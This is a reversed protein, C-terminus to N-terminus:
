PFRSENLRIIRPLSLCQSTPSTTGQPYRLDKEFGVFSRAGIWGSNGLRKYSLTGTEGEELTDYIKSSEVFLEKKSGDAFQFTVYYNPEKLKALGGGGSKIYADEMRKSLVTVHATQVPQNNIWRSYIFLLLIAIVAILIPILVKGRIEWFETKWFMQLAGQM